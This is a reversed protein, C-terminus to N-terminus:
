TSGRRTPRIIRKPVSVSINRQSSKVSFFLNLFHCVRLSTKIHNWNWSRPDKVTFVGSEKIHEEVDKVQLSSSKRKSSKSKTVSETDSSRTKSKYWNGSFISLILVLDRPFSERDLSEGHCMLQHLFLSHPAPRSKFLEHMKYLSSVAMLAQTRQRPLGNTIYGVLTPLGPTLDIM